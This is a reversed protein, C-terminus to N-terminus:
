SMTKYNEFGKIFCTYCISCFSSNYVYALAIFMGDTIFVNVHDPISSNISGKMLHLVSSKKSEQLSGDPHAFSCPKPLILYLSVSHKFRNRKENGFLSTVRVYGKYVLENIQKSKNKKLLNESVFNKM